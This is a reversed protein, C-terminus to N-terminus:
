KNQIALTVKAPKMLMDGFNQLRIIAGTLKTSVHDLLFVFREVGRIEETMLPVKIISFDDGYLEKYETLYKIQAKQRTLCHGCNSGAEPYLLNNIVINHTDIEYSVLEQILRETEWLSLYESICVCIFTTKDQILYAYAHIKM